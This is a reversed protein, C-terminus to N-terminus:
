SVEEATDVIWCLTEHMAAVGDKCYDGREPDVHEGSPADRARKAIEALKAELNACDECPTPAYRWDDLIDNLSNRLGGFYMQDVSGYEHLHTTILNRLNRVQDRTLRGPM